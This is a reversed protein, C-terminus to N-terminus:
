TLRMLADLRAPYVGRVNRAGVSWFGRERPVRFTAFLARDFTAFEEDHEGFLSIGM